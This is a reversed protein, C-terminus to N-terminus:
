EYTYFLVVGSRPKLALTFGEALENSTLTLSKGTERDTLTYVANEHICPLVM